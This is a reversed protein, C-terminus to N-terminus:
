STAVTELLIGQYQLRLQPFYNQLIAQFARPLTM